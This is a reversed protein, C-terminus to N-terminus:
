LPRFIYSRKTLGEVNSNKIPSRLAFLRLRDTECLSLKAALYGTEKGPLRLIASLQINLLCGINLQQQL